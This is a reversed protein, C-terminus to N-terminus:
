GGFGPSRARTQGASPLSPSPQGPTSTNRRQPKTPASSAPLHPSLLTSSAEGFPRQCRSARVERPHLLAAKASTALTTAQVARHQEEDGQHLSHTLTLTLSETEASLSQVRIM